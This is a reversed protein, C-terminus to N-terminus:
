QCKQSINISNGVNVVSIGPSVFLCKKMRILFDYRSIVDDIPHSVNPIVEDPLKDMNALHDQTLNEKYAAEDHIIAM